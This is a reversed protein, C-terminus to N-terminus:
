VRTFTYKFSKGAAIDIEAETFGHFTDNENDNPSFNFEGYIKEVFKEVELM